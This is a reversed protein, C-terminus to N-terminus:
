PEILGAAQHRRLLHRGERESERATLYGRIVLRLCTTLWFVWVRVGAM